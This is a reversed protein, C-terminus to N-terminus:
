CFSAGTNISSTSSVTLVNNNGCEWRTTSGQTLIVKWQVQTGIPISVSGTWVCVSGNCNGASLPLANAPAWNGLQPVSGAIKLNQGFQTSVGTVTIAIQTNTSGTPTPSPTASVTVPPIPGSPTPTPTPTPTPFHHVIPQAPYQLSAVY